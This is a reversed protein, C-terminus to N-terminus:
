AEGTQQLAQNPAAEGGEGPQVPETGDSSPVDRPQGLRRDCVLVGVAVTVLIPVWYHYAPVEPFRTSATNMSAHFILSYFVSGHTHNYLWTFLITTFIAGAVYLAFPSPAPNIFWLPLHWGAWLLALWFSAAVPGYRAQLRPLAFGRWGPEEGLPGCLLLTYVFHAPLTEWTGRFLLPNAADHVRSYLVIAALMTAPLLLLSVALWVPRARWRVLRGLLERLGRGGATVWAVGLAAVFPGFQGLTALLDRPATVPLLGAADAAVSWWCFWTWAYALVFYSALPFRRLVDLIAM